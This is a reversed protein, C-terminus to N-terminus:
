DGGTVCPCFIPSRPKISEAWKEPLKEANSSFVTVLTWRLLALCVVGGRVEIVKFTDVYSWTGKLTNRGTLSRTTTEQAWRDVGCAEIPNQGSNKAPTVTTNLLCFLAADGDCMNCETINALHRYHACGVLMLRGCFLKKTPSVPESIHGVCLCVCVMKHSLSNVATITHQEAALISPVVSFVPPIANSTIRFGALLSAAGGCTPPEGVLSLGSDWPSISLFSLSASSLRSTLYLEDSIIIACM